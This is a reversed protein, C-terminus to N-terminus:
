RKTIKWVVGSQKEPLPGTPVMSMIGFDVIFLSRGDPSFEVDVPRELGGTQLSSAPGIGGKNTAFDQVTGTNVDVMVVKYGVPSSMKGTIPTMDGFQAVVARGDIGFADNREFAIGNSSSHMGFIAAPKPPSNPHNALIFSPPREGPRSKNEQNVPIGGDYDPWGYWMGPIIKWLHDGNTIVPRSGRADFGNETVYLDGSGDVAMGYPNRLGWAILELPGGDLKIRFIAGSCPITGKIVQGAYTTDGFNSYAGTKVKDSAPAMSMPNDTLFNKGALTIDECPIDHFEKNDSLWGMMWNDVGVVSSNTATGQGFYIYGDKIVLGNTHHDGFSPLDEVLTTIKGDKSIKLIKGGEAHGGEAVYFVGQHYTVGNWPGNKTGKAISTLSGDKGIRLLRPTEWEGGYSYGSEIVFANGQEDFTVSTPFTLGTSVVEVTYGSPVQIDKANVTREPISADKTKVYKGKRMVDCAVAILLLCFILSSYLFLKMYIIKQFPFKSKLCGTKRFTKEKFLPFYRSPFYFVFHRADSM